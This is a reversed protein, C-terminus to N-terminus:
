MELNPLCVSGLYVESYSPYTYVLYVGYVDDPNCGELTGANAYRISNPETGQCADKMTEASSNKSTEGFPPIPFSLVQTSIDFLGGWWAEHLNTTKARINCVTVQFSSPSHTNGQKRLGCFYFPVWAVCGTGGTRVVDPGSLFPESEYEADVAKYGITQKTNHWMGEHYAGFKATCTQDNCTLFVTAKENRIDADWNGTPVLEGSGEDGYYENGEVTVLPMPQSALVRAETETPASSDCALGIALLPFAILAPARSMRGAFTM